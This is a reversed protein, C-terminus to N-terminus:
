SPALFSRIEADVAAHDAPAKWSEVLRANPAAEVVARSTSSPHYVDDGLLVLLPRTCARVDALSAGFLADDGGFMSRRFAAWTAPAVEPHAASVEQAWGDFLEYFTDRNDELGIPQMLVARDVREPAARALRLAYPGGICMGVVCFREIGLHDMLALQDATYTAWGHDPEIPGTSAGANRQDMAIVRFRDTLDPWPRWPAKAWRDMCSRMGGPAIALVPLGEGRVEYHLRAGDHEFFPM